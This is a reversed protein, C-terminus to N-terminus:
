EIYYVKLDREGTIRWQGNIKKMQLQTKVKGASYKEEGEFVWEKDFVATARNGDPEPTVNLNSVNMEISDFQSFARQKDSRVFDASVVKKQYYDVTDAYFNMYANLNRTESLATWDNVRDAVENKIEDLDAAPSPSADPFVENAASNTETKPTATPTATPKTNAKANVNSQVPQNSINSRNTGAVENRNGRLYLWAGVGGVALLLLTVLATATVILFTKSKKPPATTQVPPAVRTERSPEWEREAATQPIEIRLPEVRRPEVVTETEGFVVTPPESDPLDNLPTGDQLCFKLTDDTYRTQCNPCYKM